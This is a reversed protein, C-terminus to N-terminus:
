LIYTVMVTPSFGMILYPMEFYVEYDAILSVGLRPTFMYSAGFGSKVFATFDTLTGQSGTNLVLLVPGGCVHAFALFPAGDGIEYRIDPGLPILFSKASDSPGTASFFSVGAYLGVAFRGAPTIFRLSALLSPSFGVSFYYSAPGIPIFSAFSSSFSYNMRTPVAAAPAPAVEAPMRGAEETAPAAKAQAKLAAERLSALQTVREQVSSLLDDLAKFIVSDLMLDLPGREERVVPPAKKQLDRWQLSIAMQSGVVSYTCSLTVAAGAKRAGAELDAASPTGPRFSVGLGRSMLRYRVADAIVTGFSETDALLPYTAVVIDPPLEQPAGSDGRSAPAPILFLVTCALVIAARRAREAMMGKISGPNRL